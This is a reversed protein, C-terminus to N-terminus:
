DVPAVQDSTTIRDCYFLGPNSGFDAPRDFYHGAKTTKILFTNFIPVYIYKVLIHLLTCFTLYSGPM